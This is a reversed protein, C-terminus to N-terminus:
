VNPQKRERRFDENPLWVAQSQGDRCLTATIMPATLDYPDRHAEQSAGERDAAQRTGDRLHPATIAGGGAGIKHMSLPSLGLALYFPITRTVNLVSLACEIYSSQPAYGWM